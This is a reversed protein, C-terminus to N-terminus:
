ISWNQCLMFKIKWPMSKPIIYPIVSCIEPSCASEIYCVRPFFKLICNGYLFLFFFAEVFLTDIIATVSFHFLQRKKKKLTASVWEVQCKLCKKLNGRFLHMNMLHFYAHVSKENCIPAQMHVHLVNHQLCPLFQDCTCLDTKTQCLHSIM